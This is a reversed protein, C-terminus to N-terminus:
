PCTVGWPLTTAGAYLECLPLKPTGSHCDTCAGSAGLAQAKPQVEHNLDMYLKTYRWDWGIGTTADYKDVTTGAAVQGSAQAGRTFANTWQLDMAAQTTYQYGPAQILGWLGNPGFLNAVLVFSNAGNVYVGQRGRMVKFPFIKANATTRTAVPAGLTIRTSDDVPDLGLGSADFRDDITMHTSRGDHWAYTPAINRKWVFDGKIYDYATVATGASDPVGLDNVKTTVVGAVGRTNDGATSWDWDVKGFQGRSFKTIHCTQCAIKATHTDLAEGGSVKGTHPGSGHCDECSARQVNAPVHIGAGKFQHGPAAHCNSCEVGRGMHVDIAVSPNKLSTGMLKVNDAGGAFFHCSGCNTRTPMTINRAATALNVTAAPNGFNKPDKTYGATPDSHCVLCDVRRALPISSDSGADAPDYGSYNRASKQPKTADPDGGYGAHCQDCRKDNSATAVCFNNILNRKGITGPNRATVGDAAVLQPTPGQWKWHITTMFDDAQKQHCTVCQATVEYGSAFPGRLAMATQHFQAKSVCRKTDTDCTSDAGCLNVCTPTAAATDCVECPGCAPSCQVAQVPVCQGNQCATGPGCVPDCALPVCRNATTDCTTGVGCTDVCVPAAGTSDCAQCPACAPSCTVATVPVCTGNECATGAGCAPDCKLPVCVGDVCAAGTGCFDTCTKSPEQTAPCGTLSLAAVTFALGIISRGTAM